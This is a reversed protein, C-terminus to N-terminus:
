TAPVRCFLAKLYATEPIAPHVPHDIAQFGREIIQVTRALKRASQLLINQLRSESLHMSCSCSILIGDPTLLQMALRNLRAYGQEGTKIDKRRKIFAPPDVIVVDFKRGAEKMAAMVDFADGGEISVRDEVKNALCNKRIAALATKSSDVCCVEAAGAMAAQVGWAGVYSFADLVSKGKVYKHMAFRNDRQDFFWGTKQGSGLPIEFRAGGEELTISEPVVGIVQTAQDLGELVRVPNDNLLLIGAPSVLQQLAELIETRFREMGATTIQVVLVDDYRDVVLGPLFDSEGFVMRYFPREFLSERLRLASSIYREFFGTDFTTRPRRSLLRACILSHPNVYAAGLAQGTASQVVALSGAEFGGLPTKRTDVENSYIWLHGARLRREENKKLLLVPLDASTM